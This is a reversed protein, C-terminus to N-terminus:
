PVHAAELDQSNYIVSCHVYPHVCRKFNTNQTEESINGSTFDSPYLATGNKIKSTVRYQKGCHSYWDANGGLTCSTEKGKRWMKVLVQEKNM